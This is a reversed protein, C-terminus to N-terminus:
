SHLHDIWDQISVDIIDLVSAPYFVAVAILIYGFLPTILLGTLLQM